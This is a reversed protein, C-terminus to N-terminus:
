QFQVKSFVKTNKYKLPRAFARMFVLLLRFLKFFVNFRYSFSLKILCSFVHTSDIVVFLDVIYNEGEFYTVFGRKNLYIITFKM